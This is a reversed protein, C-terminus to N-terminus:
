GLIIRVQHTRRDDALPISAQGDLPVGDVEVSSVGRTVGLPNEVSVVDFAMLKPVLLSSGAAAMAFKLFDRRNLDNM